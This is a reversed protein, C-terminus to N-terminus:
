PNDGQGHVADRGRLDRGPKGCLIRDTHPVAAEACRVSGPLGAPALAPFDARVTTVDTGTVM